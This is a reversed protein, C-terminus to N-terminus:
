ESESNTSKIPKAAVLPIDMGDDPLEPNPFPIVGEDTGEDNINYSWLIQDHDRALVTVRDIETGIDNSTWVIEIKAAEPPIGPLTGQPDTFDLAAQTPINQGVGGGNAKKFRVLVVEDFCLKITQSEEIIRVNVDSGFEAIAARAIADFVLNAITRSYLLPTYGKSLRCSSIDLWEDYARSVVSMIREHYPELAGKVDDESYQDM